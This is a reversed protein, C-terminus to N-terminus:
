FIVVLTGIITQLFIVVGVGVKILNYAGSAKDIITQQDGTKTVLAEVTKEMAKIRAHLDGLSFDVTDKAM